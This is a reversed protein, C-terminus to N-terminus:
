SAGGPLHAARPDEVWRLAGALKRHEMLHNLWKLRTFRKDLFHRETLGISGFSQCLERAGETASWLFRFDPFTRQFKSFDAKYTRQDAGPRAEVELRCGPITRAAIEALEMVQHNLHNAGVNFAQNHVDDLPAKLIALFARAADSVHIVPRWPKGDSYVAVKGSTVGTGILDNFVTDFRMRPSLGYLTGNRLFTPSFGDGALASVTQEAAVKSRAYETRPDLPSNEDVDNAESMGYMICSSSFLYRRVGAAKALVALRVSGEFNIARTWGEDLNGIPDNSLAALHIVADFGRLDDSNLDRIDKIRWPLQMRDPVLTCQRFYGTDLGVVEYGAEAILPAMVSGLYGNHGTILVREPM